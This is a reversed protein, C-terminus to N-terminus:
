SHSSKMSAKKPKKVMRYLSEGLSFAVYCLVFGLIWLVFIAFITQTDVVNRERAVHMM